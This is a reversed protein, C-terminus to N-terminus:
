LPDRRGGDQSDSVVRDVERSARLIDPQIDTVDEVLCKGLHAVGGTV